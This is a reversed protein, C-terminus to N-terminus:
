LWKFAIAMVEQSPYGKVVWPTPSYTLCGFGRRLFRRVSLIATYVLFVSAGRLSLAWFHWNHLLSQRIWTQRLGGLFTYHLRVKPAGSWPWISSTCFLWVASDARLHRICWMAGGWIRSSVRSTIKSSTSPIFVMVHIKLGPDHLM